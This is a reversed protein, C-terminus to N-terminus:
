AKKPPKPPPPLPPYKRGLDNWYKWPDLDHKRNDDEWEKREADRSDDPM